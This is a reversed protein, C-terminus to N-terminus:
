KKLEEDYEMLAKFVADPHFGFAFALGVLEAHKKRLEGFFAENYRYEATKRALSKIPMVKQVEQKEENTTKSIERKIESM